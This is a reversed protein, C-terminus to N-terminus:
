RPPGCSFLIGELNPEYSEDVDNIAVCGYDQLRFVCCDFQSFPELIIGRPFKFTGRDGVTVPLHDQSAAVPAMKSVTPNM